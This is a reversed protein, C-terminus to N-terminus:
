RPSRKTSGAAHTCCPPLFSGQRLKPIALDVQGAPTALVKPRTGNRRTVRQETREYRGAGVRAAAEVEILDQLGAQLLRRFLEEHALPPDDPLEQLLSSLASQDHTITPDEVHNKASDPGVIVWGGLGDVGLGHWWPSQWWVM